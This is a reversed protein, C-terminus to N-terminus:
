QSVFTAEGSESEAGFDGVCISGRGVFFWKTCTAPGGLAVLKEV